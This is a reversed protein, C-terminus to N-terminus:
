VKLAWFAGDFVGRHGTGFVLYRGQVAVGALHYTGVDLDKIEEGTSKKLFVLGGTVERVGDPRVTRYDQTGFIVVDGVVTPPSQAASGGKAPVQWIIEGTYLDIASHAGSTVTPRTGPQGPAPIPGPKWPISNFNAENFYVRGTSGDISIGWTIGGGAAAPGAATSWKLKGNSPYLAHVDGNKQGIVIIDEIKRAHPPGPKPAPPPGPPIPPPSQMSKPIYAPAMGFDADPGPTGICLEPNIPPTECAATWSDIPGLHRVWNLKGSTLDFTLVSNQWVRDPIECLSPDATCPIYADPVSYVNGTAYYIQNRPIDIAPQSGWIAAGSWRGPTSPDDDPLTKREWLTTFKKLPVSYRLAVASDIFTYIPHSDNGTVTPDFTNITEETSSVGLYLTNTPLHLSPSQTIM